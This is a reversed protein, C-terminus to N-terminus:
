AINQIKPPAFPEFAGEPQGGTWLHKINTCEAYVPVARRGLRPSYKHICDCLKGRLTSAGFDEVPFSGSSVSVLHFNDFLQTKASNRLNATTCRVATRYNQIDSTQNETNSWEFQSIYLIHLIKICTFFVFACFWLFKWNMNAKNLKISTNWHKQASTWLCDTSQVLTGVKTTQSPECLTWKVTHLIKVSLHLINKGRTRNLPIKTHFSRCIDFVIGCIWQQLLM